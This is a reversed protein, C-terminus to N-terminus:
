PPRSDAQAISLPTLTSRHISSALSRDRLKGGAAGSDRASRNAQAKVNQTMDGMAARLADKDARYEALSSQWVSFTERSDALVRAKDFKAFEDDAPDKDAEEPGKARDQMNLLVRDPQRPAMLDQM